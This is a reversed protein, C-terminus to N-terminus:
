AMRSAGTAAARWRNSEDPFDRRDEAVMLALTWVHLDRHRDPTEVFGIVRTFSRPDDGNRRHTVRREFDAAAFNDAEDSLGTRAFRRGKETESSQKAGVVSSDGPETFLHGHMVDGGTDGVSRLAGAVVGKQRYALRELVIRRKVIEGGGATRRLDFGRESIDRQM